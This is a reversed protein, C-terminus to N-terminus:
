RPHRPRITLDIREIPVISQNGDIDRVLVHDKAVVRITGTVSHPISGILLTVSEGTQEFESLRAHYTLSGGKVTRGGSKAPKVLTVASTIRTDAIETDTEVTLYDRGVQTVHGTITRGTVVISVMDGRHASDRVAESITRKRLRGIETEQEVSEAEIRFEAGVTERLQRALDDLPDENWDVPGRNTVADEPRM